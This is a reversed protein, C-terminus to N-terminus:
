APSLKEQQSACQESRLRTYRIIAIQNRLEGLVEEQALNARALQVNSNRLQQQVQWATVTLAWLSQATLAWHGCELCM